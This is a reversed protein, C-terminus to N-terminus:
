VDQEPQEPPEPPQDPRPEGLPEIPNPEAAHEPQDEEPRGLPDIPTPEATWESRGGTSANPMTRAIDTQALMGVLRHGDVCEAGATMVERATAM